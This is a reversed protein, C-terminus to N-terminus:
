RISDISQLDTSVLAGPRSSRAAFWNLKPGQEEWLNNWYGSILWDIAPASMEEAYKSHRKPLSM